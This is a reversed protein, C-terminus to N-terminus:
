ISWPMKSKEYINKVVSTKLTLDLAAKEIHAIYAIALPSLFFLAGSDPFYVFQFRSIARILMNFLDIIKPFRSQILFWFYMFFKAVREKM